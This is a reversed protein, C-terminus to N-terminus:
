RPERNRTMCCEKYKRGRRGAEDRALLDKTRSKVEELGSVIDWSRRNSIFDGPCLATEIMGVLDENRRRRSMRM